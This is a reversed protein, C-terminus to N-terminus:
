LYNNDSKLFQVLINPEVKELPPSPQIQREVMIKFCGHRM